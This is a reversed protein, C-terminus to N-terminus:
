TTMTFRRSSAKPRRRQLFIEDDAVVNDFTPNGAVYNLGHAHPNGSNGFEFRIWYQFPYASSDPVIRSMVYHVLLEVRLAHMFAAIDPNGKVWACRSNHSERSRLDCPDVKPADREEPRASCVRGFLRTELATRKEEFKNHEEPDTVADPIGERRLEKTADAFRHVEYLYNHPFNLTYWFAPNRGYGHPDDM